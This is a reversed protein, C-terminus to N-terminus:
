RPAPLFAPDVGERSGILNLVRPVYSQTQRPLAHAIAGFTREGTRYLVCSVRGEGANYAAIVLPWSRFRRHLTRLYRAAARASREPDLREDSPWTRLGFRRATAPTLQFLGRAGVHSLAYEDFLSEVEAIWILEGPVGEAEFANKLRALATGGERSENRDPVATAISPTAASATDDFVTVELDSGPQSDRVPRPPVVPGSVAAPVTATGAPLEIARTAAGTVLLALTLMAGVGLV